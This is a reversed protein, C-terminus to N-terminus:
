IFYYQSSSKFVGWWKAKAADEWVEDSHFTSATLIKVIFDTDHPIYTQDCRITDWNIKEENADASNTKSSKVDLLSLSQDTNQKKQEKVVNQHCASLLVILPIIYFLSSRDM